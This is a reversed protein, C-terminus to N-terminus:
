LNKTERYFAKLEKKTESPLNHWRINELACLRMYCASDDIALIRQWATRNGVENLQSVTDIGVLHLQKELKKGINPLNALEGM